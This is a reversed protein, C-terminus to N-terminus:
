QLQRCTEALLMCTMILDNMIKIYTGTSLNLFSIENRKRLNLLMRHLIHPQNFVTGVNVRAMVMVVHRVALHRGRRGVILMKHVFIKSASVHLIARQIQPGIKKPVLVSVTSETETM